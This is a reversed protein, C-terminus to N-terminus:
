SEASIRLASAAAYRRMYTIASGQGQPDNKPPFIPAAYEISEGSEHALVTVLTPQGAENASPFQLLAIGHGNLIPRVKAILTDLTTYANGFHPNTGVKEIAPLEKQAAVLAAYLAKM